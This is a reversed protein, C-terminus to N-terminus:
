DRAATEYTEMFTEVWDPTQERLKEAYRVTNQRGSLVAVFKRMPTLDYDLIVSGDPRKILCQRAGPLMDESIARFEGETYKLKGRWVDENATDNRFSIKTLCQEIITTGFTEGDGILDEPQQTSIFVVTNNKRGRRIFNDTMEQFGAHPLYAQAEDLSVVARRGDIVSGIRYLLYQAAPAIVEDNDFISTLDFGFMRIGALM